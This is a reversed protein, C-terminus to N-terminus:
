SSAFADFLAKFEDSHAGEQSANVLGRIDDPGTIVGTRKLDLACDKASLGCHLFAQVAAAAISRPTELLPLMVRSHGNITVVSPKDYSIGRITASAHIEGDPYTSGSAGRFPNGDVYFRVRGPYEDANFTAGYIGLEDEHALGKRVVSYGGWIAEEGFRIRGAAEESSVHPEAGAPFVNEVTRRLATMFIPPPALPSRAAIRGTAVQLLAQLADQDKLLARWRGEDFGGEVAARFRPHEELIGRTASLTKGDGGVTGHAIKPDLFRAYLPTMM